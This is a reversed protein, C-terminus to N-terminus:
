SVAPLLESPAGRWVVVLSDRARTAAVYLLSRERLLADARDGEALKDIAWHAPISDSSVDFLVLRAFEMGKARHMTMVLPSGRGVSKGADVMRADGGREALGAVLEQAHQRDRVLLGVTEAAVGEELWQRVITATRNLADGLSAAAVLQPVPGRRASRYASADEAADEMDHFEAGELVRMAFRLNQETTRYNLTLRRARGVINIGYRGLVVGHGYIRQHSDEAIFLDDPGPAVLARLFQWKSPSLDQGEDVLVHDVVGEGVQELHAAAVAALEDFDVSGEVGSRARYAAVVSWVAQRQRRNLSVGRGPRRVRLYEAEGTIRAPLIVMAYEAQLFAVSRLEAPLEGGATDVADRWAADSDTRRGLAPSRDGLVARFAGGSVLSEGAGRVVASVAADVGGVYVGEAGLSGALPVSPDLRRLDTRLSDALVTNFTTLLVRTGPNRRVLHRARHLLVVTKGTGAGGSLRFAGNYGATAYRRQEPHLFVRWAAFDDDEIAKRLEEDNEIFAFQLRSADRNLAALLEDDSEQEGALEVRDIALTARVEEVTTGAALEILALIQWEPSGATAALLEDDDRAALARRAVAEDVGLDALTAADVGHGALLPEAAVPAASEGVSVSPETEPPTPTRVSTDAEAEADPEQSAALPAPHEGSSSPSPVGGVGAQPVPGTGGAVPTERPETAMVLEAIGNVPNVKLRAKKAVAIADDHPLIGVYVYHAESAQGQVKFLVARYFKDVRATRVRPDVSGNIPEVHLGPRTDDEALKELFSFAQKRVSADVKGIPKSGMVIQPM